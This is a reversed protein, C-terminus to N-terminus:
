KINASAQKVLAFLLSSCLVHVSQRWSYVPRRGGCGFSLAVFIACLLFFFDVPRINCAHEVMNNQKTIKVDRSVSPKKKGVIICNIGVVFLRPSVFVLPEDDRITLYIFLSGVFM